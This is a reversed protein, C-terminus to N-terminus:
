RNCVRYLIWGIFGALAGGLHGAYAVPAGPASAQVIAGLIQIALWLLLFVWVPYVLWGARLRRFVFWGLRERPFQLTYFVLIGSVVGSAGIAPTTRDVALAAQLLCCAVSAFILLVAYKGRGIEDEVNGGFAALFISTPCSIFGGVHLFVPTLLTLGNHRWPEAPMLGWNAANSAVNSFGVVSVLAHRSGLGVNGLAHGPMRKCRSESADWSLHSHDEVMRRAHRYELAAKDHAREAVMEMEALALQRRPDDSSEHFGWRGSSPTPSSNLNPGTM